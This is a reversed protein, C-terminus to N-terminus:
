RIPAVIFIVIDWILHSSMSAGLDKTGYYTLGWISDAVFTTVVWLPNLSIVHILSDCLASLFVGGVRSKRNAIKRSFFNQLNGRFYSEFGFSDLLLIIVQLYLPHSGITSYISTEGSAKIGLPSYTKVFNNGVYFIGYLFLSSLVGIGVTRLSPKFLGNYRTLSFTVLIMLPTAIFVGFLFYTSAPQLFLISMGLGVSILGITQFRLSELKGAQIKNSHRASKPLDSL